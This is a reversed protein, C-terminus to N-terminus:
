FLDGNEAMSYYSGGSIIIHDRLEIDLQRLVQSIKLTTARDSDSPERYGGPHNHALIVGSARCLVAERVINSIDFQINDIGGECIQRYNIIKNRKGMFVAYLKETRENMFYDILHERVEKQTLENNKRSLKRKKIESILSSIANLYIATGLGLEDVQMLEEVDAEFVNDLRGFKEILRKALPKTDKRPIAYFLMFELVEHDYMGSFGSVEFKQRMRKRHGANLNEKKEM